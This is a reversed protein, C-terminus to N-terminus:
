NAFDVGAYGNQAIEVMRQRYRPARGTYIVPRRVGNEHGEVNANYGNFWGRANRLLVRDYYRTVHATWWEESASTPEARVFGHRGMYALLDTTWEVGFEIGRPFNSSASGSQPGTPMIMNPFGCVMVGMFTLPGEKWKDRLRLGGVGRVDVRDYPGTVADFGTAYIIVDFEYERETTHIGTRTIREIPTELLDVLQVNKRNYTEYYRTELPVRKMGFGHDKPILKEAVVPDNVRSRIKGAIFESMENMAAEDTFIERFNGLWIGFGPEIYLKEWKAAREASTLDYFSREDTDHLHGATTRACFEFIEDYRNRIDAMEEPSITSNNLPACWNPHRQFVVLDAVEEAIEPILQVGTSGTGIVAVRKGELVPPDVPWGYTHFSPGQFTEMGEYRPWTPASLLGIAMIVFRSRLIRGDDLSLHWVDGEDDFRAATVSVGFQMHRRLDFKDAVYNLYGLTEPQGAFCESWSWEELLEKSFSYGYGYSESDFRAGPYRNWYWTGGLDEGRELVTVSIGLELLRYLQYIGSIGAGIVIVEHDLDTGELTKLM